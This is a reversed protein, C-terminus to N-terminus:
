HLTIIIQFDESIGCFDSFEKLIKTGQVKAISVDYIIAKGTFVSNVLHVLEKTIEVKAEQHKYGMVNKAYELIDVLGVSNTTFEM